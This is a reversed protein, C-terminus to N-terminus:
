EPEGQQPQQPPNNLDSESGPEESEIPPDGPKAIGFPYGSKPVAEPPRLTRPTIFM